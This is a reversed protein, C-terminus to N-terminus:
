WIVEGANLTASPAVATPACTVGNLRPVDVVSMTLPNPKFATVNIETSGAVSRTRPTRDILGSPSETEIGTVIPAVAAIPSRVITTVAPVACTGNARGSFEVSVMM